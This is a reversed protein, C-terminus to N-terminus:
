CRTHMKWCCGVGCTWRVRRSTTLSVIDPLSYLRYLEENYFM